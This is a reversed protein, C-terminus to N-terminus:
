RTGSVTVTVEAVPSTTGDDAVALMALQHPGDGAPAALLLTPSLCQQLELQPGAPSETYAVTSGADGRVPVGDLTVVYPVGDPGTLRFRLAQGATVASTAVGIAPTDCDATLPVDETGRSGAFALVALAVAALALWTWHRGRRIPPRDDALVREDNIDRAYHLQTRRNGAKLEPDERGRVGGFIFSM